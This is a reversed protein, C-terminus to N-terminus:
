SNAKENLCSRTTRDTINFNTNSWERISFNCQMVHRPGVFTHNLKFFIHIFQSWRLFNCCILYLFLCNEQSTELSSTHFSIPNLYRIFCSDSSYIFFIMFYTFLLNTLVYTINFEGVYIVGSSWTELTYLCSYM